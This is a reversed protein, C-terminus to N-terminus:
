SHRTPATAERVSDGLMNFALAVVFIILGPFVVLWWRDPFYIRGAAIMQGWDPAPPPLGLGLFSLSAATLVASGFDLTAQITVPGTVTPLLHRTIITHSRVGMVHAAEVYPRQRITLAQARALRAYWPWWGLSIALAMNLLGPGFLASLFIALLLPPFALFVDTARMTLEDIWGGFYGALLGLPVGILVSLAVVGTAISLSIRGGYLIRAWIDRGLQDTGMFHLSSPPQLKEVLNPDGLGQAAYRTLLPAFIVLAVVLVIVLLSVGGVPDDLFRWAPSGSRPWYGERSSAAKASM